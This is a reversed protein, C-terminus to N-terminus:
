ETDVIRLFHIGIVQAPNKIRFPNDKKIKNILYCLPRIASENSITHLMLRTTIMSTM